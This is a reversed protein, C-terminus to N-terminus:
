KKKEKLKKALNKVTSMVYATFPEKGLANVLEDIADRRGQEYSQHCHISCNTGKPIGNCDRNLNYICKYNSM